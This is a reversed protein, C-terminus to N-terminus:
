NDKYYNIYIKKSNNYESNIDTLEEKLKNNKIIEKAIILDNNYKSLQYFSYDHFIDKSSNKNNKNSNNNIVM